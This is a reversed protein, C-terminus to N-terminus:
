LIRWTGYPAHSYFNWLTMDMSLSPKDRGTLPTHTSIWLYRRHHPLYNTVDRLPRTLLFQSITFFTRCLITVDRLPRTLLFQLVSLHYEKTWLWTGYPAHSYFNSCSFIKFGTCLWTGYPAHSYFDIDPYLRRAIDPWTGYPAHSYFNNVGFVNGTSYTM